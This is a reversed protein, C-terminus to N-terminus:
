LILLSEVNSKNEEPPPIVAPSFINNWEHTKWIAPIIFCRRITPFDSPDHMALSSVFILIKRRIKTIGVCSIMGWYSM